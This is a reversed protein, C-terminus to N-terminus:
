QGRLLTNVSRSISGSGSAVLNTEVAFSLVQMLIEVTRDLEADAVPQVGSVAGGASPVAPELQQRAPGAHVPPGDDKAAAAAQSKDDSMFHVKKSTMDQVKGARDFYGQLLRLTEGGLAAPNALHGAKGAMLSQAQIEAVYEFLKRESTVNGQQPDSRGAAGPAEAPAPTVPTVNQAAVPVLGPM